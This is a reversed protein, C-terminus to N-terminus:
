LVSLEFASIVFRNDFHFFVTVNKIQSLTENIM